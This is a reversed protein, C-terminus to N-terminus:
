EDDPPFKVTYRSPVNWPPLETPQGDAWHETAVNKIHKMRGREDRFEDQPYFGQDIHCFVRARSNTPINPM